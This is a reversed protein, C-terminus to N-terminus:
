FGINNEEETFKVYYITEETFWAQNEKRYRDLLYDYLDYSSADDLLGPFIEDLHDFIDYMNWTKNTGLLRHFNIKDLFNKTEENM